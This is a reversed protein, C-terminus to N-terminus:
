ILCINGYVSTPSRIAGATHTHPPLLAPYLATPNLLVLTPLKELRIGGAAVSGDYSAKATSFEEQAWRLLISLSSLSSLPRSCFPPPLLFFVASSRSSPITSPIALAQMTLKHDIRSHSTTPKSVKTCRIIICDRDAEFAVLQDVIM